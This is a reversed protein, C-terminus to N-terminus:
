HQNLILPYYPIIAHSLLRRLKHKDDICAKALLSPAIKRFRSYIEPDFHTGSSKDMIQLASNLTMAEKYPRHSTLADFVDVVSFIRAEIPIEEGKLGNPYGNGDYKEHHGSIIPSADRLWPMASTIELGDQVHKQVIDFEQKNLRGPKLLISDPVGIKGVDHLFAGKILGPIKNADLDVAKALRLAYYSVRYNHAETDSDRKGIANGLTVVTMLQNMVLTARDKLTRNYSAMMLPFLVLTVQLLTIIVVIMATETDKEIRKILEPKIPIATRMYWGPEFVQTFLYLYYANNKKFLKYTPNNKEPRGIPFSRYEQPLNSTGQSFLLGQDTRYIQLFPIHYQEMSEILFPKLENQAHHAAQRIQPELKSLEEQASALTQKSTNHQYYLKVGFAWIVGNALLVLLM